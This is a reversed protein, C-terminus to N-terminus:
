HMVVVKQQYIGASGPIRLMYVGAAVMSLDLQAEAQQAPLVWSRVVQGRLNLLTTYTASAPLRVTLQQSTPNPYAELLAPTAARTATTVSPLLRALGIRQQGAISRFSGFAIIKDDIFQQVYAPANDDGNFIPAPTSLAMYSADRSGDSNLRVLTTSGYSGATALIRGDALVLRPTYTAALKSFSNDVTGDANLRILGYPTAQGNFGTVGSLLLKGDPQTLISIYDGANPGSGIAFTNDLTGDTNLRILIPAGFGGDLYTVVIKGSSQAIARTVTRATTSTPPVFSNDLAGAASLRVIGNRAAGGYTVFNGFTLVRGDPQVTVGRLGYINNAIAASYPLSAFSNDLGGSPLVRGLALQSTTSPNASYNVYFSGDPQPAYLSSFTTTYTQDLTGDANVRRVLGASGTLATGNFNAFQGQVLLKGSALPAATNITGRGELVPPAYTADDTGASTLRVLGTKIGGGDYQTQSGGILVQGNALAALAFVSNNAGTGAAFSADLTGNPLLRAVRGRAVGNYQMFVGGLVINGDSLLVLSRVAVNTTTGNANAVGTGPMFASDLTGDALLRAIGPAAQGNFQTFGGALLLKGDPQLGLSYVADNAGTGIGYSTDVSGNANFRILGNIQGPTNFFSGGVLIKGDAQVLISRVFDTSTPGVSKSFSTNFSPDPTGDSNLRTLSSASNGSLGAGGGVLIKGDPQVALAGLQRLGTPALAAFSTDLTGNANLRAQALAPAGNYTTFGGVIIIKGDPQLAIAGIFGNAGIGNPNFTPDLAGDATLRMIKSVLTGNAFDFGGAMLVKGDPQVALLQVGTQIGGAYPAKLVTSQFAPDLVQAQLTGLAGFRLLLTFFFTFLHKM